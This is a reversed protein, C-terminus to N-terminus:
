KQPLSRYVEAIISKAYEIALIADDQSAHQMRGYDAVARTDLLRKYKKGYEESWLGKLILDKHIAQEIGAHTKFQRGNYLFLATVAHFAAYYSRSASGDMDGRVMNDEATAIAQQARELQDLVETSLPVTIVPPKNSQSIDAYQNTPPNLNHRSTIRPM